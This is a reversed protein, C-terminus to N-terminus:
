MELSVSMCLFCSFVDSQYRLIFGAPNMNLYWDSSQEHKSHIDTERSIYNIGEEEMVLRVVQSYYSPEAHYLTPLLSQATHLEM